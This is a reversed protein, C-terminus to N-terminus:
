AGAVQLEAEQVFLCLANALRMQEISRCGIRCAGGIELHLLLHEDELSCTDAVLRDLEGIPAVEPACPAPDFPDVTVKARGPEV